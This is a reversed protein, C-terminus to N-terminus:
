WDFLSVQGEAVGKIKKPKPPTLTDKEKEDMEEEDEYDEEIEEDEEHKKVKITKSKEEAKDTKKNRQEEREKSEKAKQSLSKWGELEAEDFYHIAWGRVTNDEIRACGETAEKRALNTIYAICDDLTKDDNLVKDVFAPEKECQELVEEVVFKRLKQNEECKLKDIVRQM